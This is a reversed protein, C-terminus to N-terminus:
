SPSSSTCSRTTSRREQRLDPARARLRRDAPHTSSRRSAAAGRGVAAGGPVADDPLHLGHGRRRHPQAAARARRRLPDPRHRSSMMGIKSIKQSRSASARQGDHMPVMILCKNKHAPAKARHQGAPVDLRGAPQQHDVDEPRQHRLRRRGQAGPTKISAVDTGAGPESVGICGVVDGAIAPSSSSAACSRAASARWRRRRWTPRCASRWRCAAATSTASRRPWRWRTRTTSRWRRRVGRAQDPRAPRARRAAQVGPAGPLDRGGGMRRRASQDGRRHLAQAHAPDRPARPTYQMDDGRDPEASLAPRRRVADAALTRRAAEACVALCLPSCAARTARTSSATTSCCARPTSPTPRASSAHRRDTAKLAALQAEDVPEGKRAAGERMVIEMTGAAQEAGMVATKARRGASSSARRSAAAACATTAPASRPAASSRSRRCRPTRRGGPDDQLRAQDHRRARGRQRRHLRHHEAPLRDAHGLQCCAQIFHTSRPAGAPDLPGNNTVIGVRHGAIAAHAACPQRRRVAAKFELLDSADVIRAIVERM